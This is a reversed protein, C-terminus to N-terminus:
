EGVEYHDVRIYHNEREGRKIPFKGTTDGWKLVHKDDTIAGAVQLSDLIIKYYADIDAFQYSQITVKYPPAPRDAEDHEMFAAVLAAKCQRYKTSLINRGRVVFYRENNGVLNFDIFFELANSSKM